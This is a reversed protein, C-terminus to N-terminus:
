LTGRELTHEQQPFSWSPQVQFVINDTESETSEYIFNYLSTKFINRLTDKGQLKIKLFPLWVIFGLHM